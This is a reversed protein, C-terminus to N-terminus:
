LLEEEKRKKDIQKQFNGKRGRKIINEKKKLFQELTAIYRLLTINYVM